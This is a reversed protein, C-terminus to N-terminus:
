CQSKCKWQNCNMCCKFCFAWINLVMIIQEGKANGM